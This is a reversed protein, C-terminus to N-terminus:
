LCSSALSGGPPTGNESASLVEVDTLLLCVREVVGELRVLLVVRGENEYQEVIMGARNYLNAGTYHDRVEANRVRCQQGVLSRKM